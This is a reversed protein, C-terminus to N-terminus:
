LLETACAVRGAAKKKKSPYNVTFPLRALHAPNKVKKDGELITILTENLAKAEAVTLAESLDIHAQIGGGSDIVTMPLQLRKLKDCTTVKYSEPDEGDPDLDVFLHRIEALDDVDAKGNEPIQKCLNHGFYINRDSMNVDIFQKVCDSDRIEALTPNLFHGRGGAPLWACLNVILHDDRESFKDLLFQKANLQIESATLHRM